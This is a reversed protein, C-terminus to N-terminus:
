ESLEGCEEIVCAKRPPTGNQSEIKKVVDMGEVVSGFVVHKGDLHPTLVICIFFQSGNTNPGANAMSLVGPGTHKLTFNEDPFKNGYISKGGTGNGRTFDGGQIMFDKIVRHFASGQFGFGKEGTCLARFNEATKPVTDGYLGMVIRGAKEKGISMDFYVKSTVQCSGLIKKRRADGDKSGRYRLGAPSGFLLAVTDPPVLITFQFPPLGLCPCIGFMPTAGHRDTVGTCLVRGDRKTMDAVDSCAYEPSQLKSAYSLTWFLIFSLLGGGFKQRDRSAMPLAAAAVPEYSNFGASAAEGGSGVSEAPGNAGCSFVVFMLTCIATDMPKVGFHSGLDSDMAPPGTIEFGLKVCIMLSHILTVVIFVLVGEHQRQYGCFQVLCRKSVLATRWGRQGAARLSSAFSQEADDSVLCITGPHLRLEPDQLLLKIDCVMEKDVAQPSSPLINLELNAGYLGFYRHLNLLLLEETDRCYMLLYGMQGAEMKLDQLRACFSAEDGASKLCGRFAGLIREEEGGRLILNDRFTHENAYLRVTPKVSSDQSLRDCIAASCAGLSIDKYPFLNDLDWFVEVNNSRKGWQWKSHAFTAPLVPHKELPAVGTEKMM